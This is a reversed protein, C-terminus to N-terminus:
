MLYCITKLLAQGSYAGMPPTINGSSSSSNSGSKSSNNSIIGKSTKMHGGGVWNYM